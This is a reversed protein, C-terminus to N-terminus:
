YGSDDDRGSDAVLPATDRKFGIVKYARTPGLGKLDIRELPELEIVEHVEAYVRQSVLIQDDKASGCLRSARNVASGIAAYDYRGEFGITGTSVHGQDIGIGFGLELDLMKWREILERACHRMEMAMRVAQLGHDELPKPANFFVMLGDGTFRELTAHYSNIIKGIERHYDQLVWRIDEPETRLTFHSWGRLDCFLVTVYNRGWEQEEEHDRQLIWEAVDTSFFRKLRGVAAGQETIKANLQAHLRV